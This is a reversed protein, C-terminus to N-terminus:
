LTSAFCLHKCVSKFRGQRITSKPALVKSKVTQNPRYVPRDTVIFVKSQKYQQDHIQGYWIGHFGLYAYRGKSDRATTIWQMNTPALTKNVVIM